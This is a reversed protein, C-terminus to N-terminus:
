QPRHLVTGGDLFTMQRRKAKTNDSSDSTL